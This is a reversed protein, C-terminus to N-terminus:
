LCNYCFLADFSITMLTITRQLTTMKTDSRSICLSPKEDYFRPILKPMNAVGLQILLVLLVTRIFVLLLM